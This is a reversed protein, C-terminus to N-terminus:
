NDANIKGSKVLIEFAPLDSLSGAGFADIAQKAELQDIDGIALLNNITSLVDQRGEETELHEARGSRPIGSGTFMHSTIKRRIQGARHELNSARRKAAKEVRKGPEAILEQYEKTEKFDPRFRLPNGDSDEVVDLFGRDNTALMPYSPSDERATLDDVGLIPDDVGLAEADALMQDEIWVDDFGEVHYISEPPYQVFRRNGGISTVGWINKTSEFALRESQEVSGNTLAMFDDFNAMYAAQMGAPPKPASGFIGPDFSEDVLDDFNSLRQAKEKKGSSAVRLEEKQTPTLGYTQKRAIEIAVAAEQGNSIADSVQISMARSEASFDAISGPTDQQIRQMLEMHALTQDDSGSRMVAAMNSILKDPVIGTNEVFDVNQEILQNSNGAWQDAVSNYYNNVDKRDQSSKTPDAPINPNTFLLGRQISANADDLKASRATQVKLSKLRRNLDTQAGAVFTDWEEPTFGAKRKEFMDDLKAYAAEPGEDEFTRFLDGKVSEEVTGRELERRQVKAQEENIFGAQVASDIGAFAALLSSAAGENDGDRAFGLADNAAAEVQGQVELANEKHTQAIENNQVKIRSSSILSDISDQIVQRATPDVNNLTSTRYAEVQDNFASLDSNNEAAIRSLEERNDRDISAVYAARLGQNYAKAPIKGFFGEEKFEPAQGEQFAAQGAALSKEAVQRAGITAQQQSFQDLRATLSSSDFQLTQAPRIDTTETFRAM